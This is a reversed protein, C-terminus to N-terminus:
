LDFGKRMMLEYTLPVYKQLFTYDYVFITVHIILLVVHEHM